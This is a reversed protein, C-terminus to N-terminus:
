DVRAICSRKETETVGFSTRNTSGLPIKTSFDGEHRIEFTRERGVIGSVNLSMLNFVEMMLLLGM